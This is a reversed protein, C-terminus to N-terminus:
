SEKKNNKFIGFVFKKIAAIKQKYDNIENQVEQLTKQLNSLVNLVIWLIVGLMIICFGLIVILWYIM